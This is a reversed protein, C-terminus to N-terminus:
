VHAAEQDGAPADVAQLPADMRQYDYAEEYVVPVQAFNETPPPSAHDM